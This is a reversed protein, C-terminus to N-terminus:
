FFHIYFFLLGIIYESSLEKRLFNLAAQLHNEATKKSIQMEEAIQITNKGELRSKIFVLRRKTPMQAVLRDVIEELERYGTDASTGVTDRNDYSAHEMYKDLMSKSRFSKKVQNFAITFLYSQFQFSANLEERKEWVKTFVDQVLEETEEKSKLYGFAFHYLKSSYRDFLINFAGLDGEKLGIVLQNTDEM